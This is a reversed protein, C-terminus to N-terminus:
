DIGNMPLRWRGDRVLGDLFRVRRSISKSLEGGRLAPAKRAKSKKPSPDKKRRSVGPCASPWRPPSARVLELGSVKIKM